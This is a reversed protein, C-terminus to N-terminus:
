EFILRYKRIEPPNEDSTILCYLNNDNDIHVQRISEKNKFVAIHNPMKYRTIHTVNQDYLDIYFFDREKNLFPVLIRDDAKIIPSFIIPLPFHAKIRPINEQYFLSFKEPSGYDVEGVTDKLVQGETDYKILRYPTKLSYIIEKKANKTISSFIARCFFEDLGVDQEKSIKKTLGIEPEILIGIAGEIKGLKSSIHIPKNDERLMVNSLYYKSDILEIDDYIGKPTKWSFLFQGNRNYVNINRPLYDIVYINGDELIKIKKAVKSLEGPGQGLKGFSFLFKGEPSFCQIRSNRTDLIFIRGKSDVAFSFPDFFDENEKDSGITLLLEVRMPKETIKNQNPWHSKDSLGYGNLILLSNIIINIIILYMRKKKM